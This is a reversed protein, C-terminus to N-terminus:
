VPEPRANRDALTGGMMGEELKLHPELGVGRVERLANDLSALEQQTKRTRNSEM